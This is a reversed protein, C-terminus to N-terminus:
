KNDKGTDNLKPNNSNDIKLTKDQEIKKNILQGFSIGLDIAETIYKDIFIQRINDAVQVLALEPNEIVEDIAMKNTQEDIIENLKNTIGEIKDIHSNIIRDM